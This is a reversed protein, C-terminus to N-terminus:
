KRLKTLEIPPMRYPLVSVPQVRLILDICFEIQREPSFKSLKDPFVYPVEEVMHLSPYYTGTEVKSKIAFLSGYTELRRRGSIFSRAQDFPTSILKIYWKIM